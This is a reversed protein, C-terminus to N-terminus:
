ITSNTEEKPQTEMNYEVELEENKLIKKLLSQTLISSITPSLTPYHLLFKVHLLDNLGIISPDQIGEKQQNKKRKEQNTSEQDIGMEELKFEEISIHIEERDQLQMLPLFTEEKKADSEVLHEGGGEQIRPMRRGFDEKVLQSNVGDEKGEGTQWPPHNRRKVTPCMLSSAGQLPRGEKKRGRRLWLTWPGLNTKAM